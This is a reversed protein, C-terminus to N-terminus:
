YILVIFKQLDNEKHYFMAMNLSAWEYFTRCLSGAEMPRWGRGAAFTVIYCYSKILYNLGNM